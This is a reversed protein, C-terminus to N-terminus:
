ESDVTNHSHNYIDEPLYKAIFEDWEDQDCGYHHSDTIEGDQNYSLGYGDNSILEYSGDTYNIRVTWTDFSFSPDIAAIAIIITDSFRIGSLDNLFDATKDKPIEYVPESEDLFFGETDTCLDYIQVSSVTQPDIDFTKYLPIIICSTLSLAVLILTVTLLAIRKM